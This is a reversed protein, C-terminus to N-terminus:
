PINKAAISELEAEVADGPHYRAAPNVIVILKDLTAEGIAIRVPLEVKELNYKLVRDYQPTFVLNGVEVLMDADKSDVCVLKARENIRKCYTEAAKARLEYSEDVIGTHPKPYLHISTKAQALAPIALALILWAAIKM